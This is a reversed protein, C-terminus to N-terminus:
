VPEPRGADVKEPLTGIMAQTLRDKNLDARTFRGTVRGRRLVTVEDAVEMVEDLKHTIYVISAGQDALNRLMPTLTKVESSLLAATPEDLILIAAGVTLAILIELRQREGITLQRVLANPNIILGFRKGARSLEEAAAKRSVWHRGRPHGLLYNETGTLEDVLGYHQQVVGIGKAAGDRRGSFRVNKGGLEIHGSGPELTGALIKMLTTKGAGNEGLVAHITGKRLVLDVEALATFGNFSKSIDILRAQVEEPLAHLDAHKVSEGSM